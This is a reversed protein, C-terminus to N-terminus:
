ANGAGTVPEAHDISAAWDNLDDGARPATVKRIDVMAGAAIGESWWRRALTAFAKIGAPDHDVCVTLSELPYLYPFAGLNGADICAWVPAFSRAMTLATEIGEALGIGFHVAEDPWLRICGGAKRHKGLLMRPPDVPAKRGSGDGTIWTRHLSLRVDADHADTVLAVLAPGVSGSPGHKLEPHWRLDGEPHPLACGRAALYRGAPDGPEIPKCSQWLEEGWSALTDFRESPESRVPKPARAPEAREEGVVERLEALVDLSDCGAHCKVLLGRDGDAITLSPHRDGKGKGHSPVPCPILYGNGTRRGKVRRAIGAAPPLV